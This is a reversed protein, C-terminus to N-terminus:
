KTMKEEIQKRRKELTQMESLSERANNIKSSTVAEPKQALKTEWKDLMSKTDIPSPDTSTVNVTSEEQPQSIPARKEIKEEAVFDQEKSPLSLPNTRYGEDDSGESFQGDSFIDESNIDSCSADSFLSADSSTSDM